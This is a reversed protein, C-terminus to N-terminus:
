KWFLLLLAVCFLLLRKSHKLNKKDTIPVLFLNCKSFIGIFISHCDTAKLLNYIHLRNLKQTSSMRSILSTYLEPQIIQTPAGSNRSTLSM